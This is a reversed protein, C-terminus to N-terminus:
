PFPARGEKKECSFRNQENYYFNCREALLRKLKARARSLMKKANDTKIDMVRAIELVPMSEYERLIIIAHYQAPLMKIYSCICEKMEQEAM